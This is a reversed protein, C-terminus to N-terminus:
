LAFPLRMEKGRYGAVVDNGDLAFTIMETEGIVDSQLATYEEASIQGQGNIYALLADIEFSHGVCGVLVPRDPFFRHVFDRLRDLANLLNEAITVPNPGVQVGDIRGQERLWRVEAEFLTVGGEFIHEVYPAPRGDKTFWGKGIMETLRLPLDIVVKATPDAEARQVVADATKAFGTAKASESLEDRSIVVVDERGAFREKLTDGYVQMTSRTRVETSVGGQFIITGPPAAEVLKAIDEAREKALEVGDEAIGPFEASEPREKTPKLSHRTVFGEPLPNIM